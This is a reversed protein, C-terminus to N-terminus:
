LRPPSVCWVKSWIQPRINSLNARCRHKSEIIELIRDKCEQTSLKTAIRNGLDQYHEQDGQVLRLRMTPNRDGIRYDICEIVGEVWIFVKGLRSPSLQCALDMFITVENRGPRQYSQDSLMVIIPSSATNFADKLRTIPVAQSHMERVTCRRATASGEILSFVPGEVTNRAQEEQYKRNRQEQLRSSLTYGTQEDRGSHASRKSAAAPSMSDESDSSDGERAAIQEWHRDSGFPCLHQADAAM